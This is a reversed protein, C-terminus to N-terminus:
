LYSIHFQFDEAATAQERGPQALSKDAGRDTVSATYDYWSVANNTFSNVVARSSSNM